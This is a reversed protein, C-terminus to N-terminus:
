EVLAKCEELKNPVVYYSAKCILTIGSILEIKHDVRRKSVLIIPLDDLFVKKYEMFIYNLSEIIFLKDM